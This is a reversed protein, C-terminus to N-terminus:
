YIQVKKLAAVGAQAAADALSGVGASIQRKFAKKSVELSIDIDGAHKSMIEDVLNDFLFVAGSFDNHVLWLLFIIKVEFYMPIIFVFFDVFFEALTFAGFVTWFAVIRKLDM